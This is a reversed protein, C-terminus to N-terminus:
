NGDIVSGNTLDPIYTVSHPHGDEFAALALDQSVRALKVAESPKMLRYHRPGDADDYLRDIARILYVPMAPLMTVSNEWSSCDCDMGGTVFAVHPGHVKWVGQSNYETYTGVEMCQAIQAVLLGRQALSDRVEYSRQRWINHVIRKLKKTMEM